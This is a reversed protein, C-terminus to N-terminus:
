NLRGLREALLDFVGQADGNEVWFVNKDKKSLGSWDAVTQGMTMGERADISMHIQKGTFLEPKLLYAIVSADHVPGGPLGYRDMDSKIYEKLIGVVVRSARNDIDALQQLRADSTLIKYTVDLPIYVLKVGSNLVVQAAQPDAFVNFEAVPTVNGGNFHEGGMVVVEKIGQTIEPAQIMALALNTQPGLMAITVSHAPARRLTNILYEVASGRAVGQRPEHVPVGPIGEQGHLNEAYVPTRVLPKPAGAYIPVNERGAWERALRANRTTKDIRVKGAVTTIARVNLEEPSALALFLAVMDDAGPDADIIIDRTEAAQAASALLLSSFALGTFLQKIPHRKIRHQM